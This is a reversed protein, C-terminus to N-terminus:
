RCNRTLTTRPYEGFLAHYSDSFRGLHWFSWRMAIEAVTVEWSTSQMLDRRAANLRRTRLWQTPSLGSYRKFIHQLQRVSVDAADALELACLNDQPCDNVREIVRQIVRKGEGARADKTGVELGQELIFCCDELLQEVLHQHNIGTPNSAADSLMKSLWNTFLRCYQSRLPMLILDDIGLSESSMRALDSRRFVVSLERYSEPTVWIDSTKEDLLYLAEENIDFSFVLTNDPTHFAQEVRLNMVEEFVEVSEAQAHVTRGRFAGPSIQAYEQSWGPIALKQQDM